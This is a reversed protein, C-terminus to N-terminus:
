LLKITLGNTLEYYSRWINYEVNVGHDNNITVTGNQQIMPVNFNTVPDIFQTPSGLAVPICIYKYNGGAFSYNSAFGTRLSNTLTQIQNADITQAALSGYYIMLGFDVSVTASNILENQLDTGSLSFTLQGPNNLGSIINTTTYSTGNLGSAIINGNNENKIVLSNPKVNQQNSISWQFITGVQFGEGVEMIQSPNISFETFSPKVFVGGFLIRNLVDFTTLGSVDSGANLLGVTIDTISGEPFVSVGGIPRWEKTQFDWGYFAFKSIVFSYCGAELGDYYKEYLQHVSFVPAKLYRLAPFKKVFDWFPFKNKEECNM